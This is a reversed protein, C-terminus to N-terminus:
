RTVSVNLRPAHESVCPRFNADRRESEGVAGVGESGALHLPVRVCSGATQLKGKIRGDSPFDVAAASNLGRAASM